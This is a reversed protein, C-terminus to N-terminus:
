AIKQLSEHQIHTSYRMVIYKNILSLLKYIGFVHGTCFIFCNIDSKGLTILLLQYEKRFPGCTAHATGKSPENIIGVSLQQVLFWKLHKLLQHAIQAFSAWIM